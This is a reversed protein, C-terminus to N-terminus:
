FQDDLTLRMVYVKDCIYFVFNNITAGSTQISVYSWYIDVSSPLMTFTDQVAVTLVAAVVIHFSLLMLLTAAVKRNNSHREM